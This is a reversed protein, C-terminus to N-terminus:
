CKGVSAPPTLPLAASLPSPMFDMKTESTESFIYEFIDIILPLRMVIIFNRHSIKIFNVENQASFSMEWKIIKPFKTLHFSLLM